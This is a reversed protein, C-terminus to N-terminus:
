HGTSRGRTRHLVRAVETREIRAAILEEALFISPHVPNKMEM